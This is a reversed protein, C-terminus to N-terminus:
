QAAKWQQWGALGNRLFATHEPQGYRLTRHRAIAESLTTSPMAAQRKRSMAANVNPTGIRPAKVPPLPRTARVMKVVAVRAPNRPRYTRPARPTLSRQAIYHLQLRNAQMRVANASLGTAAVVAASGGTPYLELLLALNAPHWSTRATVPVVLPRGTAKLKAAQNRIAYWTRGPIAVEIQARTATAYHDRLYQNDRVTYPRHQNPAPPKVAPAAPQLVAAFAASYGRLPTPQNYLSM